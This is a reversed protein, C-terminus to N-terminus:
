SHPKTNLVRKRKENATCQTLVAVIRKNSARSKKYITSVALSLSCQYVLHLSDYNLQMGDFNGLALQITTNATFLVCVQKIANTVPMEYLVGNCDGTM